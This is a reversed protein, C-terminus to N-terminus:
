VERCQVTLLNGEAESGCLGKQPGGKKQVAGSQGAPGIAAADRGCAASGHRSGGSKDGGYHQATHLVM